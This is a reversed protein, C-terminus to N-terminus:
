GTAHRKVKMGILAGIALGTLGGSIAGAGVVSAWALSTDPMAGSPVATLVLIGSGAVAMAAAGLLLARRPESSGEALRHAVLRAAGGGSLFAPFGAFMASLRAIRGLGFAADPPSILHELVFLTLSALPVGLALGVSGGILFTWRPTKRLSTQVPPSRLVDSLM